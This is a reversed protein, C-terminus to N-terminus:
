FTSTVNIRFFAGRLTVGTMSLTGFARPDDAETKPSLAANARGAWSYGAEPTIWFRPARSTPDDSFNAFMLSAGLSFDAAPVWGTDIMAEGLSPDNVKSRQYVAGPAARGFFYLWTAEHYRAELPVTLRHALINTEAGRATASSSGVDWRFGPAFSFAGRVITTRSMGVSWQTMADNKSYPDYAADKVFTNRVGTDIAWFKVRTDARSPVGDATQATATAPLLLLAALILKNM